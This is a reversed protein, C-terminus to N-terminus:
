ASTSDLDQCTLAYLDAPYSNGKHLSFAPSAPHQAARLSTLGYASEAPSVTNLRCKYGPAEVHCNKSLARPLNTFNFSAIFTVCERERKRRGREYVNGLLSLAEQLCLPFQLLIASALEKVKSNLRRSYRDNLAGLRPSGPQDIVKGCCQSTLRTKRIGLSCLHTLFNVLFSGARQIDGM